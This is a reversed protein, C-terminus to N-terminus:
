CPTPMSRRAWASGDSGSRRWYSLRPRQDSRDGVVVVAVSAQMSM